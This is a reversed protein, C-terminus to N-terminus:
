VNRIPTKNLIIELKSKAVRESHRAPYTIISEMGSWGAHKIM